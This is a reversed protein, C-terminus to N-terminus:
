LDIVKCEILVCNQRLNAADLKINKKLLKWWYKNYTTYSPPHTSPPYHIQLLICLVLWIYKLLGTTM